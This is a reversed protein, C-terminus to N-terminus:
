ENKICRISYGDNKNGYIRDVGETNYRMGKGFAHNTAAESSTWYYSMTGLSYYGGDDYYRYGSPLSTFGSENTAGTNPENWNVTGVEKLKGGAIADGGLNVILTDWEDKTPVHWGVPAINRTDNVTYWNYLLGFSRISDNYLSYAGIMLNEWDTRDYGSPITDGNQYHTVELNEKLWTQNGIHITDYGYGDIDYIAYQYIDEDDNNNVKNDECCVLLLLILIVSFRGM